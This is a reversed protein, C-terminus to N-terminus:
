AHQKELDLLVIDVPDDQMGLTPRRQGTLIVCAQYQWPASAWAHTRAENQPLDWFLPKCFWSAWRATGAVWSLVLIEHYLLNECYLQPLHPTNPCKINKLRHCSDPAPNVHAAICPIRCYKTTLRRGSVMAKLLVWTTELLCSSIQGGVRRRLFLPLDPDWICLHDRCARTYSNQNM